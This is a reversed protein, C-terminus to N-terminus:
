NLLDITHSKYADLLKALKDKKSVRNSVFANEMERKFKFFDESEKGEFVPYKIKETKLTDLTYLERTRDQEVIKKTVEGVNKSLEKLSM